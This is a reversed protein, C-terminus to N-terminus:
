QLYHQFIGQALVSAAATNLLILARDNWLIGVFAWGVLGIFQFMINYPFINNAAFFVGLIAFFSAVWKVYWDFTHLPTKTITLNEHNKLEVEVTQTEHNLEKVTSVETNEVAEEMPTNIKKDEM